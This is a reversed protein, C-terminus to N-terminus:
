DSLVSPSSLKARYRPVGILAVFHGKDSNAADGGFVSAFHYPGSGNAYCHDAGDGAGFVNGPSCAAQRSNYLM